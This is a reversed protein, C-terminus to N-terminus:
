FPGLNEELVKPVVYAIPFVSHDPESFANWFRHM